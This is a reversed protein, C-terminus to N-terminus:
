LVEHFFPIKAVGACPLFFGARAMLSCLGVAKLLVTKGGTNPGSIILTKKQPGLRFTNRVIQEAPLVFGLLPHYLGDLEFFDAFEPGSVGRIKEYARAFNGRALILDLLVTREYSLSLNPAHPHLFQSLELLIRYVEEEILLETQKIRD